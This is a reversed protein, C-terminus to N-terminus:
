KNKKLNFNSSIVKYDVNGYKKTRWYLFRYKMYKKVTMDTFGFIRYSEKWRPILLKVESIWSWDKEEITEKKVEMKIPKPKVKVLLNKDLKNLDTKRNELYDMRENYFYSKFWGYITHSDIAIIDGFEGKIAKNIVLGIESLKLVGFDHLILDAAKDFVRNTASKRPVYNIINALSLVLISRCKVFGYVAAIRKLTKSGDGILEGVSLANNNIVYKEIGKVMLEKPLSEIKSPLKKMDKKRM